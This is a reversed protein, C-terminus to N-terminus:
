VLGLQAAHVGAQFRSQADISNMAMAIDNRVTRVSVGIKRAVAEDTLGEALLRLILEARPKSARGTMMPAPNAREWLLEAFQCLSRVAGPTYMLRHTPGDFVIGITRDIALARTPVHELVRPAIKRAGLWALHDVVEPVELLNEQLVYRPRGGRRLMLKILQTSFELANASYEPVLFIVDKRAGVLLREIVATLDILDTHVGDVAPSIQQLGHSM